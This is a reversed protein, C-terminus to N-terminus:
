VLLFRAASVSLISWVILPMLDIMRFLIFVCWDALYSGDDVLWKVAYKIDGLEEILCNGIRWSAVGFLLLVISDFIM